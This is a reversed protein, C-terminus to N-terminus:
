YKFELDKTNFHPNRREQYDISRFYNSDIIYKIKGNQAIRSTKYTTLFQLERGRKFFHCISSYKFEFDHDIVDPRIAVNIGIGDGDLRASPYMVGDIEPNFSLLENTFSATYSYYENEEEATAPVSAFYNSLTKLEYVIEETIEGEDIIKKWLEFYWQFDIATKKYCDFIPVIFLNIPRSNIWLSYSCDKKGVFNDDRVEKCTECFCTFRASDSRGNDHESFISGYFIPQNELNARMLHSSEAPPYSLYQKYRFEQNLRDHLRLRIVRTGIALCKILM